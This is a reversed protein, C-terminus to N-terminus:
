SHAITFWPAQDKFIVQAEEYLRTREEVDSTTKAKALLDSFEENCWFARNAGGDGASACSLLVSLFNDPDCNDGTWGLIVRGDRGTEKSRTQDEGWDYSVVEAQIGIEAVDAQMMEATRRANRRYHRQVPMAGIKVSLGSVGAEELLKKAAEPDYPDDQIATNY